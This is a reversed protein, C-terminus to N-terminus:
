SVIASQGLIRLAEKEFPKSFPTSENQLYHTVIASEENLGIKFNTKGEM